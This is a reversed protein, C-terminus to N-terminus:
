PVLLAALSGPIRDAVESALLGGAAYGEAEGAKGHVYVGVCAAREPHLGAGLLAGIVGALVDGMGGAALVPSGSSNIWYRGDPGAILSRAGKLVVFARYKEALLQAARIRDAQVGPLDMGLLRSAEAPHPTLVTPARRASLLGPEEALINLGDADVVLPLPAACLHAFFDRAGSAVGVGPGFVLATKRRLLADTWHDADFKEVTEHMVEPMAAKAGLPSCLTVLGAGTRLAGRCALEAAGGKGRSGAVVLVHGYTGKHSAFARPPLQLLPEGPELYRATQAWQQVARQPLGIDLVTVRGAYEVGPTVFLGPKGLGFTATADARVAEGLPQGTDADLGSPIDVAFVFRGARGAANIAEVAPAYAGEVPRDLGTGLL